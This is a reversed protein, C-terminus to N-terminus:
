EEGRLIKEVDIDVAAVFPLKRDFTREFESLILDADPQVPSYFAEKGNIVVKLEGHIQMVPAVWLRLKTVDYVQMEILTADTKVAINRKAIVRGSPKSEDLPPDFVGELEIRKGDREVVCKVPESHPLKFMAEGLARWGPIEFEGLHVINDGAMIKMREAVSDKPVATVICKEKIDRNVEIGLKVRPPVVTVPKIDTNLEGLPGIETIELWTKRGTSPTDTTWDIEKPVLDRQWKAVMTDLIKPIEVSHFTHDHGAEPYYQLIISAGQENARAIHRNIIEGPYTEDKGGSVHYINAGKLNTFWQQCVGNLMPIMPHAVFPFYGAFTDPRRTALAYSGNGGDSMGGIFVRDDDINYNRKVERIMHLINRMGGEINWWCSEKGKQPIYASPGLVIIDEEWKEDLWKCFYNFDAKSRKHQFFFVAGHLRVMMPYRREPDYTDPIRLMYHRVQGDPCLTETSFVGRKGTDPPTYNEIANKM